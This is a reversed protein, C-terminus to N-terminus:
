RKWNVGNQVGNGNAKGEARPGDNVRSSRTRIREQEEASPEFQYFKTELVSKSMYPSLDGNEAVQNRTFGLGMFEFMNHENSYKIDFDEYRPTEVM